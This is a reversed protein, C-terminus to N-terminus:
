EFSQDHTLRDKETIKGRKNITWQAQINLPAMCTSPINKVKNLPLPIAYGLIMDGTVLDQLLEPQSTAGKHNEFEIAENLNAIRCEEPIPNNAM